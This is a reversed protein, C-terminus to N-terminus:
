LRSIVGLNNVVATLPISLVILSALCSTFYLMKTTKISVSTGIYCLSAAFMGMPYYIEPHVGRPNLEVAGRSLGMGTTYLDLSIWTFAYFVLMMWVLIKALKEGGGVGAV